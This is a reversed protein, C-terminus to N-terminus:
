DREGAPGSIVDYVSLLTEDLAQLKPDSSTSPVSDTSGPVLCGCLFLLPLLRLLM